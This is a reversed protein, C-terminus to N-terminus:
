SIGDNPKSYKEPNGSEHSHSVVGNGGMMEFV